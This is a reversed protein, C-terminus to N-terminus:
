ILLSGHLTYLDPPFYRQPELPPSIPPAFMATELVPDHELALVVPSDLSVRAKGLMGPTETSTMTECCGHSRNAPTCASTGCCQMARQDQSVAAMCDAFQLLLLTGVLFMLFLKKGIM